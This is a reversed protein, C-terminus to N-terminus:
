EGCDRGLSCTRTQDDCVGNFAFSTGNPARCSNECLVLGSAPLDDSACLYNTLSYSKITEYSIEQTTSEQFISGNDSATVARTAFVKQIVSGFAVPGCIGNESACYTFTSNVSETTVLLVFGSIALAFFVCLGVVAVVLRYRVQDEDTRYFLADGFALAWDITTIHYVTAAAGVASITIWFILLDRVSAPPNGYDCSALFYICPIIAINSLFFVTFSASKVFEMRGDSTTTTMASGALISLCFFMSFLFCILSRQAQFCVGIAENFGDGLIENDCSVDRGAHIVYTGIDRTTEARVNIVYVSQATINFDIYTGSRGGFLPTGNCDFVSILANLPGCMALRTPGDTSTHYFFTNGLVLENTLPHRTFTMQLPKSAAASEAIAVRCSRCWATDSFSQNIMGYLTYLLEGTVNKNRSVTVFSVYDNKDLWLDSLTSACSDSLSKNECKKPLLVVDESPCALFSYNGSVAIQTGVIQSPRALDPAVSANVSANVSATVNIEDCFSVNVKPNNFLSGALVRVSSNAITGPPEIQHDIDPCLDESPWFISDISLVFRGQNITLYGDVVIMYPKNKVLRTQITSTTLPRDDDDCEIIQGTTCDILSLTTDFTSGTTTISFLASTQPIFHVIWDRSRQIGQNSFICEMGGPQVNDVSTSTDGRITINYVGTGSTPPVNYCTNFTFDSNGCTKTCPVGNQAYSFQIILALWILFARSILIMKPQYRV